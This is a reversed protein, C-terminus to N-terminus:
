FDFYIFSSEGGGNSYSYITYVIAVMLFICVYIYKMTPIINKNNFKIVKLCNILILIVFSVLSIILFIDPLTIESFINLSNNNKFSIINKIYGIAQNMSSSRFIIWGFTVLVFTKIIMLSKYVTNKTNIKFKHVLSSLLPSCLNNLSLLAGYYLGWIVFTWNAGHWIGSVLWVIITNIIFRIKGVRNGGLPIYIYKKLWAGLTIHWRRWFEKISKSLYPVNFNEELSVGFFGSIGISMDIFGSFDCYLQISYLIAGIILLLSSIETYNAFIKDVYLGAINAIIVKKVVGTTFRYFSNLFKIDTFKHEKYLRDDSIRDYTSIPGQLIKPFYSIYLFFKFINKEAIINRKRTEVSYSILTFTYFSIGLPIIFKYIPLNTNFLSNVSSSFFNYYKLVGLISVNIIIALATLTNEYRRRYMRNEIYETKIDTGGYFIVQNQVFISIIWVIFCSVFLYILYFYNTFGYFVLSSILLVSWQPIKVKKFKRNLFGLFYYFLISVFLIVFFEISIYNM